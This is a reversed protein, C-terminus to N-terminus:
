HSIVPLFIQQPVTDNVQVNSVLWGLGSNNNADITNFYFRLQITSGRYAMLSAWTTVTTDMPDGSLQPRYPLNQFPGGNVSIQLRRQDWLKASSETHYQYDFWLYPTDEAGLTIPPSTLTGENAGSGAYSSGDGYRWGSATSQWLGSATWDGNNVTMSDGYPFSYGSTSAIGADTVSFNIYGTSQSRLASSASYNVGFLRARYNGPELESVLDWPTKLDYRVYPCVGTDVNCVTLQYEVAGPIGYADTEANQARFLVTEGTTYSAGSQPAVMEPQGMSFADRPQVKLSSATNAGVLNDSLDPDSSEFSANRGTYNNDTFLILRSNSGIEVSAVNDGGVKSDDSALNPVLVETGTQAYERCAGQYNPEAYLVIKNPGVSCSPEPTPTPTVSACASTFNITRKGQIDTSMNGYNDWVRVGLTLSGATFGASCLDADLAFTTISSGTQASGAAKWVGDSGAAMAQVRTVAQDDHAVGMVLPSEESITAGAQPYNVTATPPNAGQNDSTYYNGTTYQTGYQAYTSSTAETYTRPRGGNVSVDDFTIDVSNGWYSAANNHVMFHLHSGCSAGTNDVTGIFDGQNVVAGVQRLSEPMSNAALHLYLQYTTPTTSEDKLVVYNGSTGDGPCVSYSRTPVDTRWRVVTGGRSALIPWDADPAYSAFDFAYLCALSGPCTTNIHSVTQSVRRATGKAWPLKYGSFTTQISSKEDSTYTYIERGDASLLSEPIADLESQWDTDAQLSINWSNASLSTKETLHAIALGPEGAVLENTEPDIMGLWLLATTGDPSYEVGVIKVEYLLFSLVKTSAGEIKADFAAQLNPDIEGASPTPAQALVVAPASQLAAALLALTLGAALVLMGFKKM